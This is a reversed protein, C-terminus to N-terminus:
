DFCRPEVRLLSAQHFELGCADKLTSRLGVFIRLMVALYSIQVGSSTHLGHDAGILKLPFISFYLSIAIRNTQSYNADKACASADFYITYRRLIGVWESM